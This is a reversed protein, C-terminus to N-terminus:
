RLHEYVSIHKGSEATFSTKGWDSWRERLQLHSLRAMLDMESPWVYRIKVPYFRTGQETLVIHRAIILQKDLEIESADAQVENEGILTVRMSQGATFRTMDPVFAEIVFVGDPLLHMAVNQFCRIQEDQTLLAYFTNFVVYILSYQGDVPVDAFNGMTIPIREGKPKCRLISVMSESADIGDVAVGTHLLPLAIRGTGIGLELAKGGHALESLVQIAAPNFESYMQDYVGAIREGYTEETYEDMVCVGTEKNRDDGYIYITLQMLTWIKLGINMLIAASLHNYRQEM